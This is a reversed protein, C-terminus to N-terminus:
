DVTVSYSQRGDTVVASGRGVAKILGEPTVSAVLPNSSNWAVSDKCDGYLMWHTKKAVKPMAFPGNGCIFEGPVTWSGCWGNKTLADGGTAWNWYFSGIQNEYTRRWVKQYQDLPAGYWGESPRQPNRFTCTGVMIPLGSNVIKAITADDPHNQSYMQNGLLINHEPDFAVV